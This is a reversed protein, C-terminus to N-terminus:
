CANDAKNAAANLQSVTASPVSGSQV